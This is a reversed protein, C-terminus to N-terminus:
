EFEADIVAEASAIGARLRDAIRDRRRDIERLIADRRASANDALRQLKEMDGLCDQYTADEIDQMTMGNIAGWREFAEVEAEDGAAVLLASTRYPDFGTTKSPMRVSGDTLIRAITRRRERVMRIAMARRARGVEWTLDTVDKVWIWEIFDTPQVAAAM